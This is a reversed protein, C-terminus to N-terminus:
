EFTLKKRVSLSRSMSPSHSKLRCLLRRERLIVLPGRLETGDDDDDDVVNDSDDDYDDIRKAASSVKTREPHTCPIGYSRKDVENM